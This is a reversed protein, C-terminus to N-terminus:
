KVAKKSKSATKNIATKDEGKIETVVDKIEPAYTIKGYTREADLLDRKAQEKSIIKRIYSIIPIHYAMHEECCVVSRWAYFNSQSDCYPCAEYTKGCVLCEKYYTAM